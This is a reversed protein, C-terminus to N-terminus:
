PAHHARREDSTDLFTEPCRPERIETSTDHRPSQLARQLLAKAHMLQGVCGDDGAAGQRTKDGLQLFVAEDGALPDGVVPAAGIRPPDDLGPPDVVVLRPRM